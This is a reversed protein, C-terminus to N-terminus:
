YGLIYKIRKELKQPKKDNKQLYIFSEDIRTVIWGNFMEMGPVIEKGGKRLIISGDPFRIIGDVTIVSPLAEEGLGIEKHKNENTKKRKYKAELERRIEEKLENLAQKIYIGVFKDGKIQEAHSNHKPHEVTPETKNYLERQKKVSNLPPYTPKAPLHVVTANVTPVNKHNKHALQPSTKSDMALPLPNVSEEEWIPLVFLAMLTPLAVALIVLPLLFKKPIKIKKNSEQLNREWERQPPIFRNFFRKM